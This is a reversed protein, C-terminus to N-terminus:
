PNDVPNWSCAGKAGEDLSDLAAMDEADLEFDFVDLNSQIREPTVSKPLPVYGKQLSWRILVQPVEKGHKQAIKVAVPDGLRKPDARVIPCYAQVVIGKDQCYQVIDRQQCWPHLEIQNVAPLPEPLAGLHKVGFNSVGIDRAWGEKQARALAKWHVARAEENPRPAHILLLDLHGEPPRPTEPTFRRPSKVLHDFVEDETPVTHGPMFKSTIFVQSRPVGSNAVGAGVLTENHYAQASDIQRYGSQLAAKVGNKCDDGRAQYVGYGIIPMAAGSRLRVTSERSLRIANGSAKDM